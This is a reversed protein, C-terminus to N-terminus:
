FFVFFVVFGRKSYAIEGGRMGRNKWGFFFFFGPSKKEGKGFLLKHALKKLFVRTNKHKFCSYSFCFLLM